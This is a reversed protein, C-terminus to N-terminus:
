AGSGGLWAVGDARVSFAKMSRRSALSMASVVVHWLGNDTIVAVRRIHQKHDSNWKVFLERADADYGTMLSCDVLLSAQGQAPIRQETAKLQQALALATLHGVLELEVPPAIPENM